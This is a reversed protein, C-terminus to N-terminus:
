ARKFSRAEPTRNLLTRRVHATTRTTGCTSYNPFPAGRRAARRQAAIQQASGTKQKPPAGSRQSSVRRQATGILLFLRLGSHQPQPICHSLDSQFDSSDAHRSSSTVASICSAIHPSPRCTTVDFASVAVELRRNTRM